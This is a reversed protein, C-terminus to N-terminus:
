ESDKLQKINPIVKDLFIKILNPDFQTGAHDQLEQIAQKQSLGQRYTRNSIMAEYADAIAIIRAPLSIEEARLGRPYGQGDWREHHSLVHEALASYADVSKLIQYSSEPHKKIELYELEDLTGTKNLISEKIAIKGIDHMLGAIELENVVTRELQLSLGFQQALYSVNESHIRERESKENLTKLIVQITKNRMSQSETLKKRYMHEEAKTWVGQLDEQYNTKTEWGISISILVNAFQQKSVMKHIRKSMAEAEKANTRPLLFVFEDGGVRCLVDDQRCNLQLIRAVTKLLEDGVLHGFADNTLKLGNVDVMVISLPLMKETDLKIASEEFFRRNYLGTLQDHYSLYLIQEQQKKKETYDRFVLVVGTINGLEDKIPAVSDEIFITQGNKKLLLTDAQLEIIQQLQLVKHVPNEIAENTTADILRIVDEFNRGKAEYKSWGTLKEAIPNMLVIRGQNDTSVVGDGLSYFITKLLNKEDQLAKELAKINTIDIYCGVMRLPNGARDWQVVRGSCILWIAQGNKHLCRIENYFRKEGLSAVHEDLALQIKVLDEPVILKRWIDKSNGLEDESYGLMKKFAPSFYENNSAFDWDWYGSLTDELIIELIQKELKLKESAKVQETIDSFLTIFQGKQSSYVSVSFHKDLGKSYETFKEYGGYKAINGYKELWYSEIEPLIQRITQGQLQQLNLGTIKEFAPNAELIEYDIVKGNKDEIIEHLAFGEQMNDFLSQLRKQSVELTDKTKKLQYLYILTSLLLLTLLSIIVLKNQRQEAESQLRDSIDNIISFLVQQGDKKTVPYSYVEVDKILGNKLRHKVMFYNRHQLVALKREIEVERPSLTNIEQITLNLLEAKSYGYFKIAAQNAEIIKGDAVDIILMISGHKDFLLEPKYLEQTAFVPSTFLLMTIAIFFIRLARWM